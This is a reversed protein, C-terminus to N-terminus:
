GTGVFKMGVDYAKATRHLYRSRTEIVVGAIRMSNQHNCENSGSLHEYVIKSFSVVAEVNAMINTHYNYLLRPPQPEWIELCDACSPPLTKLRVCRGGKGMLFYEQYKNRNSAISGLTM